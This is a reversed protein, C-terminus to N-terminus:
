KLYFNIRNNLGNDSFMPSKWITCTGVANTLKDWKRSDYESSIDGTFYFAERPIIFELPLSKAHEWVESKVGRHFSKQLPLGLAYTQGWYEGESTIIEKEFEYEEWYQKYESMKIVIEYRMNLLLLPNLRVRYIEDDNIIGNEEVLKIFHMLYEIPLVESSGSKAICKALELYSYPFEPSTNIVWLYEIGAEDYEENAYCIMGLLYHSLAIDEHAIISQRIEVKAKEYHGINYYYVGLLNHIMAIEFPQLRYKRSEKPKLSTASSEYSENMKVIELFLEAAKDFDGKQWHASALDLMYIMRDNGYYKYNEGYYRIAERYNNIEYYKDGNRKNQSPSPVGSCNILILFLLINIRSLTSGHM